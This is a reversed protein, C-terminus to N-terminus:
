RRARRVSGRQPRPPPGTPPRPTGWTPGTGDTERRPLDIHEPAEGLALREAADGGVEAQALLRDAGGGLLHVLAEADM